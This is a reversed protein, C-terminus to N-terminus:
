PRSLHGCRRQHIIALNSGPLEWEAIFMQQGALRTCEVNARHVSERQRPAQRVAAEHPQCRPRVGAKMRGMPMGRRAPMVHTKQVWEVEYVCHLLPPSDGCPNPDKTCAASSRTLLWVCGLSSTPPASYTVRMM